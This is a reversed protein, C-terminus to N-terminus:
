KMQQESYEVQGAPNQIVAFSSDTEDFAKSVNVRIISDSYVWIRATAEPTKIILANSEKKVSQTNGLIQFQM